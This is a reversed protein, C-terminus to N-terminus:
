TLLAVDDGFGWYDRTDSYCRLPCVRRLAWAANLSLPPAKRIKVPVLPLWKANTDDSKGVHCLCPSPPLFFFISEWCFYWSSKAGSLERVPVLSNSHGQAHVVHRKQLIGSFVDSIPNKQSPHAHTHTTVACWPWHTRQGHNVFPSPSQSCTPVRCTWLAPWTTADDTWSQSLALEHQRQEAACMSLAHTRARAHALIGQYYNEYAFARRSVLACYGSM